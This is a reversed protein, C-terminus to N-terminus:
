ARVAVFYVICGALVAWVVVSALLPRDSFLATTPDQSGQGGLLFLYRLIGFLVVPATLLLANSHVKAVTDPAVTYLVYAVLTVGALLTVSETLFAAPYRPTRATPHQVEPVRKGFALLLALLFGCILLWQSIPVPIALAGAALRVVFGTALVMAELVPVTKLTLSYLVSLAVYGALCAFVYRGLVLSMAVAAAMLVFAGFLAHPVKLEGAAVPRRSKVPDRRDADRDAVDNLLYGGSAALCFVVAAGAVRMMPDLDFAHGSFLAPAVVFGNKLWQRPRLARLWVSLTAM